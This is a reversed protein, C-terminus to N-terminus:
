NDEIDKAIRHIWYMGGAYGFFALLLIGVLPLDDPNM